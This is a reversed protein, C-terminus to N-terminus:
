IRYIAAELLIDYRDPQIITSQNTPTTINMNLGNPATVPDRTVYYDQSFATQWSSTVPSSFVAPLKNDPNYFGNIVASVTRNGSVVQGKHNKAWRVGLRAPDQSKININALQGGPVFTGPKLNAVPTITFQLPNAAFQFIVEASTNTINSLTAAEAHTSMTMFLVVGAKFHKVM